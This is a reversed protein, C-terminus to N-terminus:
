RKTATLMEVVSLVFLFATLVFSVIRLWMTFKLYALLLFSLISFALVRLYYQAQSLKNKTFFSVLFGLVSLSGLVLGYSYVEGKYCFFLSIFEVSLALGFLMSFYFAVDKKLSLYSVTKYYTQDFSEFEDKDVVRARLCNRFMLDFMGRFDFYLILYIDKNDSPLTLRAKHYDLKFELETNQPLDLEITQNNGIEAIKRGESRVSINRLTYYGSPFVAKIRIM